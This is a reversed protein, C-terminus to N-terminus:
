QSMDFFSYEKCLLELGKPKVDLLIILQSLRPLIYSILHLYNYKTKLLQM